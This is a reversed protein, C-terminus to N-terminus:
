VRPLKAYRLLKDEHCLFLANLNNVLQACTAMSVKDAHRNFTDLTMRRRWRM